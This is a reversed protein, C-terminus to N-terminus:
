AGFNLIPKKQKHEYGCQCKYGVIKKGKAIKEYKRSKCRSFQRHTKWLHIVEKESIPQHKKASLIFWSTVCGFSVWITPVLFLPNTIYIRLNDLIQILFEEVM